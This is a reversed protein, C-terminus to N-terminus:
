FQTAACSACCTDRWTHSLTKPIVSADGVSDFGQIDSELEQPYINISNFLFADDSRGCLNIRGQKDFYGIDGTYFWGDVVRSNYLDEKGLYGLFMGKCKIAIEGPKNDDQPTKEPHVIRVNIGDLPIGVSEINEADTPSSFAIAGTETTGYGAYLQPTIRKKIQERLSAPVHSGGIKLKIGDLIGISNISLLQQAQYASVHLVNVQLLRCQGVLYDIDSPLFINTAGQAICYLRHRKSFNHEVSALCAFREEISSIHRYAQAVINVGSHIVLKSKGTTGSTPFLIQGDAEPHAITRESNGLHSPDLAIDSNVERISHFYIKLERESIGEEYSPVTYSTAGIHLSALCMIIHEVDDSCNIGVLTDRSIGANHFIDVQEIVAKYLDAYSLLYDKTVIADRDPSCKAHKQLRALISSPTDSM